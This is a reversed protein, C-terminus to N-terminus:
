SSRSASVDEDDDILQRLTAIIPALRDPSKEMVISALREGDEVKDYEAQVLEEYLRRLVRSGAVVDAPSEGHAPDRLFLQRDTVKSLYQKLRAEVDSVTPAEVGLDAARGVLATAVCEADLLYNEVERVPLFTAQGRSAAQIDAMIEASKEDRDFLFRTRVPVPATADVISRCFDFTAQSKQRSASSFRSAMPLARVEIARGAVNGISDLLRSVIAVETPGEVWILVDNSWLDGATFGLEALVQIARQIVSIRTRAEDQYILRAQSLPVSNLFVGSHTAIIYQHHKHNEIFRLLEREAFPHLHAHPEDILFVCPQSESLVGTAVILLQEIGTGCHKLPVVRGDKYLVHLEAQANGTGQQSVDTRPDIRKVSPFAATVLHEVEEWVDRRNLILNAVVNTVNTGDSKLVTEYQFHSRGDSGFGTTADRRPALYKIQLMNRFLAHTVYPYAFSSETSQRTDLMPGSMWRMGEQASKISLEGLRDIRVSKLFLHDRAVTPAAASMWLFTTEARIEKFDALLSLMLPIEENDIPVDADGPHFDETPLVADVALTFDRRGGSQPEGFIRLARLMASKGVDNRGALLTLHRDVQLTQPEHYSQFGAITVANLRM